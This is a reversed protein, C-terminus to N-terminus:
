KVKSSSRSAIKSHAEEGSTEHVKIKGSVEPLQLPFATKSFDFWM